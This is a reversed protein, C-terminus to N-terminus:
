KRQHIPCFYSTRGNIKTTKLQHIQNLPCVGDKMRHPILYHSPYATFQAKNDIATNLVEAILSYMLSFKHQSIDCIKHEPHIRSQFLIEDAYINGIGSLLHQDMLVPKIKGSRKNIKKLFEQKSIVLADPGINKQSIYEEVSPTASVFGFLRQCDFAFFSDNKFQILVRTHIPEDKKDRFYKVTGTMGFHFIIWEGSDSQLFLYKGIRKTGIIKSGSIMSTLSDASIDRLIKPHKVRVDTILKNLINSDIYQKYMEVEPLEPM